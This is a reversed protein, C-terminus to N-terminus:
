FVIGIYFAVFGQPKCWDVSVLLILIYFWHNIWYICIYILIIRLIKQQTINVYFLWIYLCSISLHLLLVYLFYTCKNMLQFSGFVLFQVKWCTRYTNPIWFYTVFTHVNFQLASCKNIIFTKIVANLSRDRYITNNEGISFYFCFLWNFCIFDSVEVLM